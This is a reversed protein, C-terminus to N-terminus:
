RHAPASWARVAGPDRGLFAVLRDGATADSAVVAEPAFFQRRVDDSVLPRVLALVDAALHEPLDRRPDLDWAHTTFEVAVDGAARRVHAPDASDDALAARTVAVSRATEAIPDALHVLEEPLERRGTRALGALAAATGTLHALLDRVRWDPCPTRRDLDAPTLRGIVEGLHRMARDALVVEDPRAATM